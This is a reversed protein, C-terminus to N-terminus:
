NGGSRLLFRLNERIDEVAAGHSILGRWRGAQDIVYISANHDVTYSIASDALDRKIATVGYAQYIAQLEAESGTLGIFTPDFSTLYRAMREPTDRAPDVTIFVVRVKESDSGLQKRAAAIDVLTTPCIDPCNTFGFFLLTVVGRQESLRFPQGDQNLLAVEPAPEAPDLLMGNRWIYPAGCAAIFLFGILILWRM